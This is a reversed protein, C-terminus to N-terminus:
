QAAVCRFDLEAHPYTFYGAENAHTEVPQVDKGQRGCFERAEAYLDGKLGAASDLYGTNHLMYVGNALPVPGSSCGALGCIALAIAICRAM